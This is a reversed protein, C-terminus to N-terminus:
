RNERAWASGEAFPGESLAIRLLITDPAAIVVGIGV